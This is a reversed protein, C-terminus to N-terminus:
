RYEADCEIGDCEIFRETYHDCDVCRYVVMHEAGEYHYSSDYVFFHGMPASREEVEYMLYCDPCYMQYVTVYDHSDDMDVYGSVARIVAANAHRCHPPVISRVGYSSHEEREAAMAIGSGCIM